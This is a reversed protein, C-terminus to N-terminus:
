DNSPSERLEATPAPASHSRTGISHIAHSELSVIKGDPQAKAILARANRESLARAVVFCGDSLTALFVRSLPKAANQRANESQQAVLM